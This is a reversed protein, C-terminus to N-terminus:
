LYRRVWGIVVLLLVLAVAGAFSFVAITYIGDGAVLWVAEQFDAWM